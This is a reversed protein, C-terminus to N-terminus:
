QAAETEVDREAISDLKGILAERAGGAHIILGGSVETAARKTVVGRAAALRERIETIHKLAGVRAGDNRAWQMIEHAKVLDSLLGDIYEGLADVAGTELALRAREGMRKLSADMTNWRVGYKKALYSTNQQGSCWEHWSAVQWPEDVGTGVAKLPKRPMECRGQDSGGVAGTARAADDGLGARQLGQLPRRARARLRLM